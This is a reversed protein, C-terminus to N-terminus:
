ALEGLAWLAAARDAPKEHPDKAIVQWLAVQRAHGAEFVARKEEKTARYFADTYDNCASCGDVTLADSVKRGMGKGNEIGAGHCAVTTESNHNCIPSRLLCPMDRAMDLLHRNRGEPEKPQPSCEASIRYTSPRTLVYLPQPRRKIQPRAFGTRKLTM